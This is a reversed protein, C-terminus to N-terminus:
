IVDWTRSGMWLVSLSSRGDRSEWLYGLYREYLRGIEQQSHNRFYKDLALQKKTEDLREYEAATLFKRVIPKTVMRLKLYYKKVTSFTNESKPMNQFINM